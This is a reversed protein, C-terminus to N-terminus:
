VRGCRSTRLEVVPSCRCTCLGVRAPCSRTRLLLGTSTCNTCRNPRLPHTTPSRNLDLSRRLSSVGANEVVEPAAVNEVAPAVRTYSSVREIAIPGRTASVVPWAQVVVTGGLIYEVLVPNQVAPAPPACPFGRPTKPTLGSFPTTITTAPGPVVMQSEGLFTTAPPAAPLQVPQAPLQAQM